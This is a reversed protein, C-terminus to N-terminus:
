SLFEGEFVFEAPGAMHIPTGEGAWRLHLTGGPLQVAVQEDLLGRRALVAVAACAGSGCALTEGVGREYVRLAIRDRGLLQAFGVNCSHSFAADRQLAPGIRVVDAQAVDPVEIVAHPNGMSVAGAEITEGNLTFRYPDAQERALGVAPPSFDPVGMDIGIGHADVSAVIRGAPSDLVFDGSPVGGDRLLWAAVCRAGNGCQAADSGDANLISYAAQAGASRPADITILQDFGIGRHRDSMRAVREAALPVDAARRDIIVFDNGAGHMKSFRLPM